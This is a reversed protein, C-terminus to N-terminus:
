PLPVHQTSEKPPIGAVPAKARVAALIRAPARDGIAAMTWASKIKNATIKKPGIM